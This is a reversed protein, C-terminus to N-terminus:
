GRRNTRSRRRATFIVALALGYVAAAILTSRLELAARRAGHHGSWICTIGSVVFSASLVLAAVLWALYIAQGYRPYASLARVRVAPALRLAGVTGVLGIALLIGETRLIIALGLAALIFVMTWLLYLRRGRRLLNGPTIRRNQAKQAM